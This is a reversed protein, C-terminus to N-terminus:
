ICINSSIYLISYITHDACLQNKHLCSFSDRYIYIIFTYCLIASSFWNKKYLVINYKHRIINYTYVYIM